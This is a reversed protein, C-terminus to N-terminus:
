LRRTSEAVTATISNVSFAGGDTNRVAIRWYRANLGKGPTLRGNNPQESLRQASIQYEYPPYGQGYTEVEVAMPTEATYGFVVEPLRKRQESGFDTFGYQVVADITEGADTDAGLVVLGESGVALIKDGVQVMDSFQWNSYWYPAGTETNMVWATASPDKQHLADSLRLTEVAEQTSLSAAEVADLLRVGDEILDARETGDDLVESLALASEVADQQADDQADSLLVVTEVEDMLGSSFETVDSLAFLALLETSGSSDAESQDLLALLDAVEQASLAESADTLILASEIEQEAVASTADFLRVEESIAHERDEQAADSLTFGAEILNFRDDENADSLTFASVIEIYSDQAEGFLTFADEADQFPPTDDVAETFYLIDDELEDVTGGGGGLAGYSESGYANGLM